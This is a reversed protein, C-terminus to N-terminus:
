RGFLRGFFGPTQSAFSDALASLSPRSAPDEALSGEPPSLSLSQAVLSLSYVLSAATKPGEPAQSEPAEEPPLYQSLEPYLRRWSFFGGVLGFPAKPSFWLNEICLGPHIVGASATVALGRAIAALGPGAISKKAGDSLFSAGDKANPQQVAWGVAGDPFTFPGVVAVLSPDKLAALSQSLSEFRSLAEKPPEPLKDWAYLRWEESGKNAGYIRFFPGQGLPSHLQFGEITKGLRLDECSPQQNM